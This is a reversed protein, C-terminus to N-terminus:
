KYILFQKRIKEFSKAEEKWWKEMDELDKWAEIDMRLRKSGALIDIPLNIEEYEYPPQKWSFERPYTNHIAKLIAVGTKFPKFKM